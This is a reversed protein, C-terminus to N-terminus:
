ILPCTTLDLVFLHVGPKTVAAASSSLAYTYCIRQYSDHQFAFCSFNEQCKAACYSTTQIYKIAHLAQLGETFDSPDTRSFTAPGRAASASPQDALNQVKSFDVECIANFEELCKNWRFKRADLRGYGLDWRIRGCGFDQQVYEPEGPPWLDGAVPLGSEMWQYVGDVYEIGVWYEKSESNETLNYLFDLEEVSEIETLYSSINKCFDRCRYVGLCEGASVLTYCSRGHRRWTRAASLACLPLLIWLIRGQFSPQFM